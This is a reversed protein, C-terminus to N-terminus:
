TPRPMGSAGNALRWSRGSIESALCRRRGPPGLRYLASAMLAQRTVGIRAVRPAAAGTGYTGTFRAPLALDIKALRTCRVAAMLGRVPPDLAPSAGRGKKGGMEEPLFPPGPRTPGGQPPYGPASISSGRM